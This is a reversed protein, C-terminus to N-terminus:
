GIGWGDFGPGLHDRLRRVDDRLQEETERRFEDSIRPRRVVARTTVQYKLKRLPLPTVRALFGYGPLRRLTADVRLPRRKRETVNFDRDLNPPRWRPDVGLFEFIAGMTKARHAAMEESTVVLLQKRPFHELYQEIQMAYRSYNLYIPNARFAQEAPLREWGHQIHQQYQSLMREVPHRVLYILRADPIVKAVRDAVGKSHPYRTYTTSAEGIALAGDAADFLQEYWALGRHWNFEEPFFQPEKLDPMFVQPHARLYEYLSTTGAKSAGIVLFNPLM